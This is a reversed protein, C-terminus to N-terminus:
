TLNIRQPGPVFKLWLSIFKQLFFIFCLCLHWERFRALFPKRIIVHQYLLLNWVDMHFHSTQLSIRSCHLISASSQLRKAEQRPISGKFNNQSHYTTSKLASGLGDAALFCHCSMHILTINFEIAHRQSQIMRSCVLKVACSPACFDSRLFCSETKKYVDILLVARNNWRQDNVLTEKMLLLEWLEAPNVSCFCSNIVKEKEAPFFTSQTSACILLLRHALKLKTALNNTMAATVSQLLFTFSHIFLTTTQTLIILINLSLTKRASSENM